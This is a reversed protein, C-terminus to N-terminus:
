AAKVVKLEEWKTTYAPSIMKRQEKWSSPGLEVAMRVTERGFRENLVDVARNIGERSVQGEERGFLPQPIYEMPVIGSIVVGAKKYPIEADFLQDLATSAERMLAFTDNSPMKLERTVSGKRHSFSGFRSARAIVTLYTGACGDARLKAALHSVHHGIASMLSQKDRIVAGFSRTSMYSAQDADEGSRVAYVPIGSLEMQLREGTVGLTRAIYAKDLSLFERITHVGERALSASLQRGIGWVTGCPMTGIVEETRSGDFIHVGGEKKAIKSAIKALTKTEAVGISVPIGTEQLIRERVLRLTDGLDSGDVEFFAEDISYPVCSPFEEKLIRMVRASIDRYLSFNSSFCTIDKDKWEKKLEFYPIGMPVGMGKVEESRSVICGDNASLVAVPKKALDPRFLRECSVFFNNCDMLGIM